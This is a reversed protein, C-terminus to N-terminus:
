SDYDHYSETLGPQLLRPRAPSLHTNVARRAQQPLQVEALSDRAKGGAYRASDMHHRRVPIIHAWDRCARCQANKHDKEHKVEFYDSTFSYVQLM